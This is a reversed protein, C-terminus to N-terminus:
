ICHMEQWLVTEMEWDEIGVGKTHIGRGQKIPFKAQSVHKNDQHINQEKM